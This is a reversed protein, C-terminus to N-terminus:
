LCELLLFYFFLFSLVVFVIIYLLSCIAIIRLFLFNFHVGPLLEWQGQESGCAVLILNYHSPVDQLPSLLMHLHVQALRSSLRSSSLSAQAEAHIVGEQHWRKVRIPVEALKTLPKLVGACATIAGM